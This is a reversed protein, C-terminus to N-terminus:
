KLAVALQIQANPSPIAKWHFPALDHRFGGASQKKDGETEKKEGGARRRAHLRMAPLRERQHIRAEHRPRHRPEAVRGRDAIARRTALRRASNETQAQRAILARPLHRTAAVEATPQRVPRSGRGDAICWLRGTERHPRVRGSRRRSGSALVRSEGLNRSRALQHGRALPTGQSRQASACETGAPSVTFFDGLALM